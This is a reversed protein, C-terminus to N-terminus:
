RTEPIFRCTSCRDGRWATRIGFRVRPIPTGRSTGTTRPIPISSAPWRAGSPRWSPSSGGGPAATAPSSSGTRSRYAGASWNSTTPRSGTISTSWNAPRRGTRRTRTTPPCFKRPRAPRPIRPWGARTGGPPGRFPEPELMELRRLKPTPFLIRYEDLRAEYGWSRFLSVMFEANERGKPSGPHHPRSSLKRIWAEIQAPDLDADMKSELLRQEEAAGPSFGLIGPPNEPASEVPPWGCWLILLGIGCNRSIRM